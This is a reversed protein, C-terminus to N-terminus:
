VGFVCRFCCCIVLGSFFLFFFSCHQYERTPDHHMSKVKFNRGVIMPELELHRKNSPIIARGRAVESRVFEPDIGERVACYLMEETIIGQKAYHMQTFVKDGRAERRHIWERRLKPIGDRPDVGQPGTTDYVDLYPEDGSLHIRRVPVHLVENTPEHEVVRSEKTSSPYCQEFLPSTQFDPNYPDKTTRRRHSPAAVAGPNAPEQLVARPTARIDTRVHDHGIRHHTLRAVSSRSQLVPTSTAFALAASEM